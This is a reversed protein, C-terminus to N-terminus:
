ALMVNALESRRKVSAKEFVNKLHWKITNESVKMRDAIQRNTLGARVFRILEIERETLIPVAQGQTTAPAEAALSPDFAERLRLLLNRKRPDMRRPQHEFLAQLVAEVDRGGDVITRFVGSIVAKEILKNLLLKARRQKGQRWLARVALVSWHFARMNWGGSLDLRIAKRLLPIAKEPAGLAIELHAQSGCLSAEVYPRLQDDCALAALQDELLRIYTAATRTDKNQLAIAIKEKLVAAYVRPLRVAPGADLIRELTSIAARYHGRQSQDRAVARYAQLRADTFLHAHLSWAYKEMLETMRSISGREYSAAALLGAAMVAGTSNPDLDAESRKVAWAFNTEAHRIRGARLDIVGLICRSYIAAYPQSAYYDPLYARELIVRGRDPDGALALSFGTSNDVVNGFWGSDSPFRERWELGARGAGDFDDRMSMQMVQLASLNCDYRASMAADYAPDAKLKAVLAEAEDLRYLLSLAWAVALLATPSKRLKEFPLLPLWTQLEAVDGHSLMDIGCREILEIAHDIEGADVAHAAATTLQGMAAFWTSATRHLARQEEVSLLSKARTVEVLLPAARYTLPDSGELRTLLGQSELEAIQRDASADDILAVMLDHILLRPTLMADLGGRAEDSLGAFIEEEFYDSLDRCIIFGRGPEAARKLRLQGRALLRVGALWGGTRDWLERLEALSPRQMGADMVIDPLHRFSVALDSNGIELLQGDNRFRALKLRTTKRTGVVIKLNDPAADFLAQLESISPEADIAHVDDIFMVVSGGFAAVENLAALMITAPPVGNGMLLAQTASRDGLVSQVLATAISRAVIGDGRMQPVMRLWCCVHLFPQLEAHMRAMLRSKGSGPLATIVCFRYEGFEDATEDLGSRPTWKGRFRPVATCTAPLITATEAM